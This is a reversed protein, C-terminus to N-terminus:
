AKNRETPASMPMIWMIDPDIKGRAWHEADEANAFPGYATEPMSEKEGVVVLYMMCGGDYVYEM